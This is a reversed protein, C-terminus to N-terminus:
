DSSGPNNEKSCSNFCDQCIGDVKSPIYNTAGCEQCDEDEIWFGKQEAM